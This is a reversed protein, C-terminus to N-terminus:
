VQGARTVHDWALGCMRARRSSADLLTLLLSARDRSCDCGCRVCNSESVDACWLVLLVWECGCMVCSSM